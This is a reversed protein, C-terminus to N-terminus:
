GNGTRTDEEVQIVKFRRYLEKLGRDDAILTKVYLIPMSSNSNNAVTAFAPLLSSTIGNAIADVFPQMATNNELPVAMEARDGEAFRAIHEKNFIGGVAHGTKVDYTGGTSSGTSSSVDVEASKNGWLNNWWNNISRGIDGIWDKIDQWLGSFWDSIGQWIGAFWDGVDGVLGTFWDSLSGWINGLWTGVDTLLGSFWNSISTWINSFWTGVNKILNSFWTSVKTWVTSFWTTIKTWINGLWATFNTWITSFWNGIDTIATSFWTSIDTWLDSFWTTINTWLDSFWTTINTWLESFWNGVDTIATSFWTTISTWLDSFWTTISTWTDSLWTTVTTWLNSFFTGIDSIVNSIWTTITTWLDAFFTSVATWINVFFTSISTWLNSFFNKIYFPILTGIWYKLTIWTETFWGGISQGVGYWFDFWDAGVGEWFDWWPGTFWAVIDDWFNGIVAGLLAGIKAGLVAGPAGGFIGGIIAGLGAGIGAGILVKKLADWVGGLFDSAFDTFASEDPMLSDLLDDSLGTGLSGIDIDSLDVGTDISGAGSGEDPDKLKFVEDFSLLSKAAKAASGTSDALDDMGSSTDDLAENFKDLDDAQDKIEPLLTDSTDVKGLDNLSDVFKGIAGGSKSSAASLGLLAGTILVILTIFPHAIIAAALKILGQTVLGLLSVLKGIVMAGIAAAKFVIWGVAASILAIRLINLVTANSRIWNILSALVNVVWILAPILISNSIQSIAKFAPALQTVLETVLSLVAYILPKIADLLPILAGINYTVIPAIENLINLIARFAPGLVEFVSSAIQKITGFVLKLNEILERIPQQLDEPVLAEFVGGIGGAEAAERLDFMADGISSLKAKIKDILPDIITQGLMLANDKINSIIGTITTVAADAVGGFKEELGEVLANLATAASINENGLNQLQEQTLGLKERLIEYAPVGASALSIMERSMLRGKTYIKGFAEAIQGVTEPDGTMASADLIGQMLYMVNKYQVGYALLQRAAEESQEFDFPTKAAFDKLVNIFETALETSGFLNSYAIQAYELEKSFEWVASTASQIARLGGYFVRSILIGQVIRGVDKYQVKANKAPTVWSDNVKGSMTKSFSSMQAGAKKMNDAFNTMNLKLKATLTAFSM